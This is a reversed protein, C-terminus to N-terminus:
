VERFKYPGNESGWVQEDDANYGRDLAYIRNSYVAIESTSYTAGALTSPCSRGVTGGVYKKGRKRLFTDCGRELRTLEEEKLADLLEEDAYAGVYREEENIRYLVVVFQGRKARRINYVRQRFPRTPLAVAAQEVYLWVGDAREEWIRVSNLTLPAFSPDLSAQQASSFSGTFWRGLENLMPGPRRRRGRACAGQANQACLLAVAVVLLAIKV